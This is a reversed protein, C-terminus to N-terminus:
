IDGKQVLIKGTEFDKVCYGLISKNKIFIEAGEVVSKLSTFELATEKVLGDNARKVSYLGKM